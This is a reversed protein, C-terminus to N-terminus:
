MYVSTNVELVLYMLFIYFTDDHFSPYYLHSKKRGWFRLIFPTIKTSAECNCSPNSAYKLNFCKLHWWSVNWQCVKLRLYLVPHTGALWIGFIIGVRYGFCLWFRTGIVPFDLLHVVPWLFCYSVPHVSFLQNNQPSIEFFPFGKTITIHLLAM